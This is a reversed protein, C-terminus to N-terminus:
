KDGKIMENDRYAKNMEIYRIVIDNEFWWNDEIGYQKAHNSLGRKLANLAHNTTIGYAEFYFNASQYSAKIM